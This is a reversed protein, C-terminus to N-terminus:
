SFINFNHFVQVIWRQGFSELLSGPLRRLQLRGFYNKVTEVKSM